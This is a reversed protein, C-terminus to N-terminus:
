VPAATSVNATSFIATFYLPRVCEPENSTSTVTTPTPAPQLVFVSIRYTGAAAYTHDGSVTYSGDPNLTVTGLSHSQDGWNIFAKFTAPDTTTDTTPITFTGVPGSFAAGAMPTITAGTLSNQTVIATSVITLFPATAGAAPAPKNQTVTITVSFAGTTQYVHFGKVHILGTRDVVLFGRSATTGDGWDISVSYGNLKPPIVTSTITAIDQVAPLESDHMPLGAIQSFTLPNGTLNAIPTPPPMVHTGRHFAANPSAHLWAAPAAHLAAASLLARPELTEMLTISAARRKRSSFHAMM